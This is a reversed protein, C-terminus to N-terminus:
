QSVALGFRLGTGSGTSHFEMQFVLSKNCSSFILYEDNGKPLTCLSIGRLAEPREKVKGM